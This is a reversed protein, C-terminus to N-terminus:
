NDIDIQWSHLKVFKSYSDNFMMLLVEQQAAQLPILASDKLDSDLISNMKLDSSLRSLSRRVRESLNLAFMASPSIFQHLIKHLDARFTTLDETRKLKEVAKWFYANKASFESRLFESFEAFEEESALIRQLDDLNQKFTKKDAVFNVELRRPLQDISEEEGIMKEQLFSMFFAGCCFCFTMATTIYSQFLM